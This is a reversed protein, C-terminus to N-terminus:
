APPGPPAPRLALLCALGAVSLTVLGGMALRPSQEMALAFGFPAAAQLFRGPMSILGLRAGYGAPGFVALPLSGRAITFLGNGCGYLVVFLPTVAPGALLLMAAGLPFLAVALRASTLPHARGMLFFEALRAAVQSPGVVAAAALAAAPAAGLAVLLPPLDASIASAVCSMAAFAAAMLIMQARAGVPGDAPGAQAPRTALPAQRHLSLHLPLALLLQAGAWALCAVRWGFDAELWATLPWGVTSAFGAILTVGTIASRAQVGFWGVLGAFAIDYLGLAMGLGIVLWAGALAWGTGSLALLVLGAAFVLNSAVLLNRGGYRDVARGLVQGLAATLLLAGSFAAFVFSTTVGLDEAMPRALIAPLYLSAAYGLTQTLGLTVAARRPGWAFLATM